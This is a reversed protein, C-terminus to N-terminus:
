EVEQKNQEFISVLLPYIHKAEMSNLFINATETLKAVDLKDKKWDTDNKRYIIAALVHINELMAKTTALTNEEQSLEQNHKPLINKYIYAAESKKIFVRADDTYFVSYDEFTNIPEQEILGEFVSVYIEDFQERIKKFEYVSLNEIEDLSIDEMASIQIAKKDILFEHNTQEAIMFQAFNKLSLNNLKTKM